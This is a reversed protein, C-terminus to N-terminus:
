DDLVKKGVFCRVCVWSISYITKLRTTMVLQSRPVVADMANISQPRLVAQVTDWSMQIDNRNM